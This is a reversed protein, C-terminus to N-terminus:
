KKVAEKAAICDRFFRIVTDIALKGAKSEPELVSFVHPLDKGDFKDFDILKVPINKSKLLSATKRTQKLALFDGSSTVLCTPPLVGFDIIDSFNMYPYTPKEKYDEGWMAKTYVSIPGAVNMDTVPSTLALATL